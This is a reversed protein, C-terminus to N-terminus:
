RSEDLHAFVQVMDSPAVALKATLDLGQQLKDLQDPTIILSTTTFSTVFAKPIVLATSFNDISIWSPSNMDSSPGDPQPLVVNNRRIAPKILGSCPFINM